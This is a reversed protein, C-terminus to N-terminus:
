LFILGLRTARVVADTRSQANLKTLIANVHFKVTHESIDLELAIAKNSLGESLLGLVQTERPTLEEFEQPLDEQAAETLLVDAFTEDLLVLGQHAALIAANLQSSEIERPLFGSVGQALLQPVPVSDVLLVVVPSLIVEANLFEQLRTLRTSDWGVDWLVIDPDYTEFDEAVLAAASVQGVIQFSEYELLLMAIGSRALPDDGVLLIQLPNM